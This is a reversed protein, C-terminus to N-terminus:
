LKQDEATVRRGGSWAQRFPLTLRSLRGIWGAGWQWLAAFFGGAVAAAGAGVPCGPGGCFVCVSSSAYLGFFALFPLFWTKLRAFRGDPPSGPEPRGGPLGSSLRVRAQAPPWVWRRLDEPRRLHLRRPPAPGQVQPM